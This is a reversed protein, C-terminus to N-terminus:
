AVAGRPLERREKSTLGGWIGFAEQRELAGQLCPERLPCGACVARAREVEPDRKPQPGPRGLEGLPFFLEPDHDTCAARLEDGTM